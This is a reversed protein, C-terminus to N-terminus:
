RRAGAGSLGAADLDHWQFFRQRLYPVADPLRRYAEPRILRWGQGEDGFRIDDEAAAPLRLVHFWVRQGPQHVSPFERRWLVPVGTLDLGVEERTERIMTQDPTERGERGGGPLDWM